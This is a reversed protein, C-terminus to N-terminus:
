GAGKGEMREFRRHVDSFNLVCGSITGLMKFNRRLNKKVRNAEDVLAQAQITNLHKPINEVVERIM